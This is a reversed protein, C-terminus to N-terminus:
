LLSSVIGKWARRSRTIKRRPARSNHTTSPQPLCASGPPVLKVLREGLRGPTESIVGPDRTAGTSRLLPAVTVGWLAHADLSRLPVTAVSREDYREPSGTTMVIETRLPESDRQVTRVPLQIGCTRIM